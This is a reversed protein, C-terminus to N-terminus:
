RMKTSYYKQFNFEGDSIAKFFDDKNEFLLEIEYPDHIMGYIKASKDIVVYNGEGLIKIVYFLHDEIKLEFTDNIDLHITIEESVYGLINMLIEKDSNIYTQEKIDFEIRSFDFNLSSREIYYGIIVGDFIDFEINKFCNEGKDYIKIGSLKYNLATNKYENYLNEDYITIKWGKAPSDSTKRNLIFERNLQRTLFSYDKPLKQGIQCFLDYEWEEINDQRRFFNFM